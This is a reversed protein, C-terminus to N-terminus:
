QILSIYRNLVIRSNFYVRNMEELFAIEYSALQIVDNGPTPHIEVMWDDLLKYCVDKKLDSIYPMLGKTVATSSGSYIVALITKNRLMNIVSRIFPSFIVRKTPVIIIGSVPYKPIQQYVAASVYAPVGRVPGYKGMGYVSLMSSRPVAEWISGDAVKPQPDAVSDEVATIMSMDSLMGNIFLRKNRDKIFLDEHAKPVALKNAVWGHITPDTVFGHNLILVDVFLDGSLGIPTKASISIHPYDVTYEVDRVLKYGNMYVDFLDFGIDVATPRGTLINIPKYLLDVEVNARYYLIDNLTRVVKGSDYHKHDWILLGNEGYEYDVGEESISWATEGPTRHYYRENYISAIHDAVLPKDMEYGDTTLVGPIFEVAGTGGPTGVSSNGSSPAVSLLDTLLGTPGYCLLVGGIDAAVPLKYVGDVLEGIGIAGSIAYESLVGPINAATIEGATLTQWLTSPTGELKDARWGAYGGVGVLMSRRADTALKYLDILYAGDMVTRRPNEHHRRFVRIFVSDAASLFDNRMVINEVKTARLAFDRHTIMRMDPLSLRPYMVGRVYTGVGDPTPMRTCIYVELEDYPTPAMPDGGADPMLLLKHEADGTSVYHPLDELTHDEFGDGDADELLTVTCGLGELAVMPTSIYDQYVGDIYYFRNGTPPEAQKAMIPLLKDLHTIHAGVESVSTAYSNNRWINTYFRAYVQAHRSLLAGGATADIALLITGALNRKFMATFLPIARNDTFLQILTDERAMLAGAGIWHDTLAALGLEEPNIGGLEYLVWRTVNDPLRHTTFAMNVGGVVGAVGTLRAVQIVVQNDNHPNFWMGDRAVELLRDDIKGM